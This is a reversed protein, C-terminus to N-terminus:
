RINVCAPASRNAYTQLKVALSGIVINSGYLRSPPHVGARHPRPAATGPGQKQAPANGPKAPSFGFQSSRCGDRRPADLDNALLHSRMAPTIRSRFVQDVVTAFAERARPMYDRFPQMNEAYPHAGGLIFSNFRHPAHKALGFGIWGDLSYGFYDAKRVSLDDLVALVDSTRLAVDYAPPIM